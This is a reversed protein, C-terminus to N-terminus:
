HAPVGSVTGNLVNMKMGNSMIVDGGQMGPKCAGMWTMTMTTEPTNSGDATVVITFKSNFDGTVHAHTTRAAGSGFKCTSASSWSGDMNHTVTGSSCNRQRSQSSFVSMKAESAETVCSQTTFPHGAMMLSSAWLGPKEHPVPTDSAGIGNAIVAVGALVAFKSPKM